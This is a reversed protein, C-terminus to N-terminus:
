KLPGDHPTETIDIGNETIVFKDDPRNGFNFRQVTSIAPDYVVADFCAESYTGEYRVPQFQKETATDTFGDDPYYAFRGSATNVAVLSDGLTRWSQIHTHGSVNLPMQGDYGSYDMTTGFVDITTKNNFATIISRLLNANTSSGSMSGVIPAHTSLVYNWGQLEADLAVKAFWEIQANDGYMSWGNEASYVSNIGDTTIIPYNWADLVIVRTKKEPFDMYYYPSYPDNEDHVKEVGKALPTLLTATWEEDTIIHELACPKGHYDNNDHNGRSATVPVKAKQFVQALYNLDAMSNAHSGTGHILDGGLIICDVDTTNAMEVVMAIERQINPRDPLQGGVPTTYWYEGEAVKKVYDIHIDTLVLFSFAGDNQTKLLKNRTDEYEDSYYSTIGRVVKNMRAVVDNYSMSVATTYAVTGDNYEVYAVVQVAEDLMEDINALIVQYDTYADTQEYFVGNAEVVYAYCSEANQLTLTEVGAEEMLAVPAAIFGVNKINDDNAVRTRFRIGSSKKSSKERISVAVTELNDAGDSIFEASVALNKAAAPAYYTFVNGTEDGKLFVRTTVPESFATAYLDYTMLIGGAKLQEGDAPTVTVTGMQMNNQAIPKTVSVNSNGATVTVEPTYDLAYVIIDDILVSGSVVALQLATAETTTFTIAAPTWATANEANYADFKFANGLVSIEGAASDKLPKVIFRMAYTTNAKLNLANEVGDYCPITFTDGLNLQKNGNGFTVKVTDYKAYATRSEDSQVAGFPVTCEPDSYWGLFSMGNARETPAPLESGVTADVTYVTGSNNVTVSATAASVTM